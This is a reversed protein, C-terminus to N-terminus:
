FRVSLVLTPTVNVAEYSLERVTSHQAAFGINLSLSIWEEPTWVARFTVGGGIDTREEGTFREFFDFYHTAYLHAGVSVLWDPAPSYYVPVSVEAAVRAYDNPDAPIASLTLQPIAIAPAGLDVVRAAFADMRHLTVARDEYDSDFVIQPAYRFGVTYPGISRDVGLSAGFGAYELADNEEYEAGFTSLEASLRYTEAIVTAARIGVNYSYVMDLDTSGNALTPNTTMTAATALFATFFKREELLVIDERGTLIAEEMTLPEAPGPLTRELRTDITRDPTQAAASLPTALAACGALLLLGIRGRVTPAVYM